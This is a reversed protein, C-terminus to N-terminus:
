GVRGIYGTFVQRQAFIYAQEAANKAVGQTFLFAIGGKIQDFVHATGCHKEALCLVICVSDFKLM